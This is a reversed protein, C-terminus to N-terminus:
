FSGVTFADKVADWSNTYGASQFTDQADRAANYVDWAFFIFKVSSLTRTAWKASSAAKQARSLRRADRAYKGLREASGQQELQKEMAALRKGLWEAKRAPASEEQKYIYAMNKAADKVGKKLLKDALKSEVGILKADSAKNWDKILNLNIDYGTGILFAPIGGGFLAATKLAITSSAKILTLRAVARQAEHQMAENLERAERYVSHVSQQCSERIKEQAELFHVARGAGRAVALLFQETLRDTEAETEKILTHIDGPDVEVIGPKGYPLISYIVNLVTSENYEKWILKTHREAIKAQATTELLTMLSDEDFILTDV